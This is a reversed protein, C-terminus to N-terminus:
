DELASVPIDIETLNNIYDAIKAQKKIFSVVNESEYEKDYLKASKAYDIFNVFEEVPLYGIHTMAIKNSDDVVISLPVSYMEYKALYNEFDENSTLIVVNDPVEMEIAEYFSEVGSNDGQMFYQYVTTGNNALTEHSENVLAQCYTCWYGVVELVYNGDKPLSVTEGTYTTFEYSSLDDGLMAMEDNSLSLGANYIEQVTEDGLLNIYDQNYVTVHETKEKETTTTGDTTTNSCGVLVLLILGLTLIKKM